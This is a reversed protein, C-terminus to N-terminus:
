DIIEELFDEDILHEGFKLLLANTKQLLQLETFGNCFNGCRWLRFFSKCGAVNDIGYIIRHQMMALESDTLHNFIGQQFLMCTHNVIEKYTEM